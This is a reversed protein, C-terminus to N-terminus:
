ITEFIFDDIAKKYAFYDLKHHKSDGAHSLGLDIFSLLDEVSINLLKDSSEIHCLRQRAALDLEAIFSTGYLLDVLEFVKSFSTITIDDYIDRNCLYDMGNFMFDRILPGGAHKSAGAGFVFIKNM